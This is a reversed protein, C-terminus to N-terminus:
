HNFVKNVFPLINGLRRMVAKFEWRRFNLLIFILNPVTVCLIMKLVMNKIASDTQILGSLLYTPVAMIITVGLNELLTLYYRKREKMFYQQFLAKPSWVLDITCAVAVTSLIVGYLGIFRISVINLTLNVFAGILPRFRDATWLGCAEKFVYAVDQIKWTFFYACMCVVHGISLLNERGAYITIFDQYLCLMCVTCWGIIWCQLLQLVDFTRYNKEVSDMAISNGLGARFSTYYVTLLGFLLNVVYYYNGYIGSVTLGFYTSIVISDASHVVTSGLKYYFLSKVMTTIQKRVDKALKGQPVLEPYYKKVYRNVLLNNAVNSLVTIGQYIYYNRLKFIAFIQLLSEAVLVVSHIAFVVSSRQYATLICTKYAFLLYSLVTSSLSILYIVYINIDGPIDKKIMYKLFPMLSLGALLIILGVINYVWKYYNLLERIRITDDEAVARYLFYVVASSFGLEAMNLATFISTFLSNLGLYNVGFIRIIAAKCVFPILIGSFRYIIGWKINNSTNKSRELRM